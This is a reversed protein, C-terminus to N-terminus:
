LILELSHQGYGSIDPPNSIADLKFNRGFRAVFIDTHLPDLQGDGCTTTLPTAHIKDAISETIPPAEAGQADNAPM